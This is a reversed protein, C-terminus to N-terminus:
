KIPDGEDPATSNTARFGKVVTFYTTANAVLFSVFSAAEPKIDGLTNKLAAAYYIIQVNTDYPAYNVFFANSLPISPPNKYDSRYVVGVAPIPTPKNDDAVLKTLTDQVDSGLTNDAGPKVKDWIYSWNSTRTFADKAYEGAPALDPDAIWIHGSGINGSTVTGFSTVGTLATKGTINKILVLSNAIFSDKTTNDVKASGAADLADESAALFVDPTIDGTKIEEALAISGGYKIVTATNGTLQFATILDPLGNKLSAAAAITITARNTSM